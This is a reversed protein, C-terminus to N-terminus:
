RKRGITSQAAANVLAKRQASNLLGAKVLANGLQTVNSVFSGHNRASAAYGAIIAGVSQGQYSFDRVGTDINDIFINTLVFTLSINYFSTHDSIVNGLADYQTENIFLSVPVDNRPDSVGASTSALTLGINKGVYSGDTAFSLGFWSFFKVGGSDQYVTDDVDTATGTGGNFSDTQANLIFNSVNRWEGVSTSAAGLDLTLTGSVNPGLFADGLSVDRTGTFTYTVIQARATAYTLSTAAILLLTRFAQKM